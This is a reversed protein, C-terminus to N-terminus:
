SRVLADFAQVGPLFEGPDIGAIKLLAAGVHESGLIDGTDSPQGTAFDIKRGILGDDSAGLSRGGRVGSGVVMTSNYPWHDKGMSGNWLPTRGFESMAVVVVEDVLWRTSLGPTVSMHEMLADLALFFNDFQPAQVTNDGHSDWGGPIGIMACRSLGLRMLEAAKIAQDLMDNGLEGLGAEFKRGEIEMSRDLNDVLADTRERALGHTGGQRAAFRASRDFVFADIMQDSPTSLQPAPQDAAGVISGDILDLLTGGGARVVSGSLHGGYSPGGFVVHPLPYEGTGSAAISTPWDPYNSASTGTMTMMRGSDHGVTHADIGNIIATRNGWRNFFQSVAPRDEGANHWLSGMDRTFTEPDMDVKQSGHHPDFVQTTDWAGSAFFFIFKREGRAARAMRPHWGVAGLAALAAANSLLSRRNLIPSM